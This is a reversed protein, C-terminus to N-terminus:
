VLAREFCVSTAEGAYPGFNPIPRYGARTYFAIAEPQRVGTELRLHTWGTARAHAELADLVAQAAGTGRREPRVYM